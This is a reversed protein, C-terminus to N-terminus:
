RKKEAKNKKEKHGGEGRMRGIVEVTSGERVGCSRLEESRRLARGGSTVFVDSKSWCVCM